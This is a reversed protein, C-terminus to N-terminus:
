GARLIQYKKRAVRRILKRGRKGEGLDGKVWDIRNGFRSRGNKLIERDAATLRFQKELSPVIDEDDHVQGDGLLELLAREINPRDPLLM